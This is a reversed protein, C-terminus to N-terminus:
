NNYDGLARCYKFHNYVLEPFRFTTRCKANEFKWTQAQEQGVREITEYKAILMMIYDPEKFGYIDLKFNDKFYAMIIDENFGKPWYQLERMLVSAFVVKKALM